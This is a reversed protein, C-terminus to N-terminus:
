IPRSRRTRTNMDHGAHLRRRHRDLVFAFSRPPYPTGGILASTVTDAPSPCIQYDTVRLGDPSM